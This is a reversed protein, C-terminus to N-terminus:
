GAFPVAPVGRVGPDVVLISGALPQAARQAPDLGTSATTVFLRDLDAGGFTCSTVRDVPLRVTRLLTGDPGFRRVCGGSWFAVWLGGEADVTMGDPYGEGVGVRVLPSREGMAATDVDYTMVDVRLTPTDIFYLRAGDPSWGLGNSIGLGPLVTTVTLDPDVRYLASRRHEHTMTGTFLRGVPDCTADNMRSEDDDAEIPIRREEVGDPGLLAVGDRVGLVAGGGSRPIVSGVPEGFEIVEDDGTDVETHHVLGAEIDVWWLREDAWVPGEALDAGAELVVDWERSSM